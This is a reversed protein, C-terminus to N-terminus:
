GWSSEQYEHRNFTSDVRLAMPSFFLKEEAFFGFRSQGSPLPPDKVPHVDASTHFQDSVEM